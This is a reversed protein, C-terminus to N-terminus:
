LSEWPLVLGILATIGNIVGAIWLLRRWPLGFVFRLISMEVLVVAVEVGLWPLGWGQIAQWAVPHTICNVAVGTLLSEWVPVDDDRLLLLYLPTEIAITLVLAFWPLWEPPM